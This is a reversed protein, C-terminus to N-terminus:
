KIAKIKIEHNSPTNYVKEVHTKLEYDYVGNIKEVVDKEFDNEPTLSIEIEGDTIIVKTKM